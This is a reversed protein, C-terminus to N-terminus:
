SETEEPKGLSFIITTGLGKGASEARIWGQHYDAIRQAHALGMGTGESSASFREFPGFAKQLQEAELGAGHDRVFIEDRGDAGPRRGVEVEPRHGENSYRVSNDLVARFLQQVRARDVEWTPLDEAVRVTAGQQEVLDRIEYLADNVVEALPTPTAPENFRGIRSLELLDDLLRRMRQTAQLIHELDEEVAESKGEEVDMKLIDSFGQITLLPSRLDHSVIYTFREVEANKADIEARAAAAEARAEAVEKEFADIPDSSGSTSSVGRSIVAVAISAQLIVALGFLLHGFGQAMPLFSVVFLATTALTAGAALRSLQRHSPEVGM